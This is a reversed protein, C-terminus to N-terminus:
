LPRAPRPVDLGFFANNSERHEKVEGTPGQDKAFIHFGPIHPSALRWPVDAEASAKDGRGSHGPCKQTRTDVFIKQGLWPQPNDRECMLHSTLGRRLFLM